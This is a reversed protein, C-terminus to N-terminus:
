PMLAKVIRSGIVTVAGATFLSTVGGLAGTVWQGLEPIAGWGGAVGAASLAITAVLFRTSDEDAIFWGGVAGLVVILEPSFKFGGMLGAIVAVVVGVIHVIKGAGM